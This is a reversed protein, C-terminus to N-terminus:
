ARAVWCRSTHCQLDVKRWTAGPHQGALKGGVEETGWITHTRGSPANCRCPQGWSVRAVAVLLDRLYNIALRDPSIDPPSATRPTSAARCRVWNRSIGLSLGPNSSVRHLVCRLPQGCPQYVLGFASRFNERCIM